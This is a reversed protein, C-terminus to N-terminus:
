PVEKRNPANDDAPRLEYALIWSAIFKKEKQQVRGTRYRPGPFSMFPSAKPGELVVRNLAVFTPWDSYTVDVFCANHPFPCHPDSVEIRKRLADQVWGGPGFTQKLATQAQFELELARDPELLPLRKRFKALLLDRDVAEARTIGPDPPVPLDYDRDVAGMPPSKTAADSRRCGVAATGALFLFIGVKWQTRIFRTM